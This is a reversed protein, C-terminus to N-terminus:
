KQQFLIKWGRPTVGRDAKCNAPAAGILLDSVTDSQANVITISYTGPEAQFDAYGLGREPKLGTYVIEEGNEWRISIAINPLDRGARDRTFLRLYATDPEDACTLKSHEKLGFATVTETPAPAGSDLPTRTGPAPRQAVFPPKYGLAQSTHILADQIAPNGLSQKERAILDNFTRAPDSLALAGIRRKAIALNGDLEYAASIMLVYDDKLSQKLDAPEANTFQVPALVWAILLGAVAGLAVSGFATGVM